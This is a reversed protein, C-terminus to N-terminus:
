PAVEIECNAPGCQWEAVNGPEYPLGEVPRGFVRRGSLAFPSDAPLDRASQAPTDM